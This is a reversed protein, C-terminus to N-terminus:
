GLRCFRLGYAGYAMLSLAKQKRITLIASVPLMSFELDDIAGYNYLTAM